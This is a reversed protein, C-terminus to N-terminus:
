EHKIRYFIHRGIATTRVLSLSGLAKRSVYTAHYFLAGQTTDEQDLQGTMIDFALQKIQQYANPEPMRNNVSRTRLKEDCWWSFQCVSKNRQKVVGCVTQPFLPSQVRNLTVHAVAIQGQIPESRAEFYINHALCRIQQQIEPALDEFALKAPPTPTPHFYEVISTKTDTLFTIIGNRAASVSALLAISLIVAIGTVKVHM